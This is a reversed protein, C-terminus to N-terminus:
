QAVPSACRKFTAYGDEDLASRFVDAVEKGVTSRDVPRDNINNRSTGNRSAFAFSSPLLVEEKIKTPAWALGLGLDLSRGKTGSRIGNMSTAPKIEPVREFVQATRRAARRREKERREKEEEIDRQKETERM